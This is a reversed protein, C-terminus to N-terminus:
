GAVPLVVGAWRVSRCWSPVLGVPFTGAWCTVQLVSFCCSHCCGVRAIPRLPLAPLFDPARGDVMAEIAPGDAGAWEAPRLGTSALTAGGGFALLARLIMPDGGLGGLVQLEHNGQLLVVLGEHVPAQERLAVLRRVLGVTDPGRDVIDGTVVLATGPSASWDGREDVLGARALLRDVAAAQGHLDTAAWVTFGDPIVIPDISLIPM